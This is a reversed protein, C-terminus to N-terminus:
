SESDSDSSDSSTSDSNSGDHDPRIDRSGEDDKSGSDVSKGRKEVAYGPKPLPSFLLGKLSPKMWGPCRHKKKALDREAEWEVLRIAHEKKIEKNREKRQDDLVKWRKM